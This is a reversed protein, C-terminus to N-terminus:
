SFLTDSSITETPVTMRFHLSLSMIRPSGPLTTDAPNGLGLDDFADFVNFNTWHLGGYGDPVVFDGSAAEFSPDDFNITEAVASAAAAVVLGALLSKFM